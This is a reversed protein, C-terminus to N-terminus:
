VRQQPPRCGACLGKVTLEISQSRFGAPLRIGRAARVEDLCIVEGCDNCQFHAHDHRRGHEDVAANFRWVRDAGAIRHAFGNRTLWELVRYVTVRDIGPGRDIRQEIEHHTLAREAALLAALVVVRARTVRTGARRLAAEAPEVISRTVDARGCWSRLAPNSCAGANM